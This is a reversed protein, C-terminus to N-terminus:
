VNIIIQIFSPAVLLRPVTTGVDELLHYQSEFLIFFHLQKPLILKKEYNQRRFEFFTLFIVANCNFASSNRWNLIMAWSSAMIAFSNFYALFSVALFSSSVSTEFSSNIALRSRPSSSYRWPLVCRRFEISSSCLKRLLRQSNHIFKVIGVLRSLMNGPQLTFLWLSELFHRLQQLFQHLMGGIASAVWFGQLPVRFSSPAAVYCLFVAQNITNKLSLNKDKHQSAKSMVFVLLGIAGENTSMNM